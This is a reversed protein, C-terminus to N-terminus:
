RYLASRAPWRMRRTSTTPRATTRCFRAEVSEIMLDRIDNSDMDGTTAVWSIVERDRCDISYAIRM